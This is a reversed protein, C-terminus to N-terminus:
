EVIALFLLTRNLSEITTGVVGSVKKARLWSTGDAPKPHLNRKVCFSHALRQGNSIGHVEVRKEVPLLFKYGLFGGVDVHIFTEISVRL